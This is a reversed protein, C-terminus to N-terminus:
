QREVGMGAIRRSRSPAESPPPLMNKRRKNIHPIPILGDPKKSLRSIFEATPSCPQADEPQGVTGAEAVPEPFKTPFRRRSYVQIIPPSAAPADKTMLMVDTPAEETTLADKETPPVAIAPTGGRDELDFTMIEKLMTAEAPMQPLPSVADLSNVAVPTSPPFSCLPSDRNAASSDLEQLNELETLFHVWTESQTLAPGETPGTSHLGMSLPGDERSEIRQNEQEETVLEECMTQPGERVAQITEPTSISDGLLAAHPPVHPIVECVALVVRPISDSAGLPAALPPVRTIVEGEKGTISPLGAKSVEVAAEAVLAAAVFIPSAPPVDIAPPADSGDSPMIAPVLAPGDQWPKPARSGVSGTTPPSGLGEQHHPNTRACLPPEPGWATM